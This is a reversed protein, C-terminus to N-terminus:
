YQSCSAPCRPPVSLGSDDDLALLGLIGNGTGFLIDRCKRDM